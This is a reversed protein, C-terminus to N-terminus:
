TISRIYDELTSDGIWIQTDASFEVNRSKGTPIAKNPVKMFGLKNGTSDVYIIFRASPLKATITTTELLDTLTLTITYEQTQSFTKRSGPLIDGSTAPNSVSGQTCSLTVTLTNSGLQTYQKTLSYKAYEGMDDATGGSNVRWVSLSGAPKSYAQVSITVTATNTRGRSDTATVTITTNGAITLLGSTFDASSNGTTHKYSNGSYGAITISLGTITASQQGSASTQVRVGCHSQVYYNGLSAYTVGGITRAISATTTGMSPKVSAPVTYTLGTVTYSGIQTSGSYTYLVMSGGSKSTANPIQASWNLPVTLTVSTVGAAVDTLATEMGTGFSLKYKHTYASSETSITMTLSSGGEMSSKNLTATSRRKYNATITVNSAPMTFAGGSITLSPSTTWGTFYYGTNPTQSVTVSTGMTATAASTTVTGGASPSAARTITYTIKTFTATVTINSAPMVFQNNSITTTPSTTYGSFYYGTGAIPTLTITDGYNASSKSATLSGGTGASATVTYTIKAFNATVTVNSAPMTFANSSITVTPSTTYGTFYYGTDPTPTLTVTDGYNATSKNATLTGGTGASATVTYNVKAFNATISIASNPMVFRNNTITVTPSTTYGSLTYGTNASPTLTITEGPAAANKSATLSGGTGAGVTIAYSDINTNITITSSGIFKFADIDAYTYSNIKPAEVTMYLAKGKLGTADSITGSSKTYNYGIGTSANGTFSVTMFQVKNNGASDCLFLKWTYTGSYCQKQMMWYATFGQTQIGSFSIVGNPYENADLTVGLSRPSSFDLRGSGSNLSGTKTGM